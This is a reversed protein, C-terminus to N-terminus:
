PHRETPGHHAASAEGAKGTNRPNYNKLVAKKKKIVLQIELLKNRLPEFHKAQTQLM